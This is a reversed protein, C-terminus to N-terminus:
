SGKRLKLEIGAKEAYGNLIGRLIKARARTDDPTNSRNVEQETKDMSTELDSMSLLTAAICYYSKSRGDDFDRLMTELAAIRREQHEIFDEIDHERIYELNPMIKRYTLFSDGAKGWEGTMRKFRSCPFEDCQACVELKKQKV